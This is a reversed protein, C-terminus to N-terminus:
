ASHEKFLEIAIEKAKRRLVKGSMTTALTDVFYVGGRLHYHDAFHEAFM